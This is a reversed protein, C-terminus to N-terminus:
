VHDVAKATPTCLFAECGAGVPLGKVDNTTLNHLFTGADPGAVEVKGRHSLDFVAASRRAADYEAAADGYHAPVLWGASEVFVAGAQATVDHLPTHEAMHFRGPPQG